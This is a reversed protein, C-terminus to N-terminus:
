TCRNRFPPSIQRFTGRIKVDFFDGCRFGQLMMTLSGLQNQLKQSLRVKLDLDIRSELLNRENLRISGTVSGELDGRLTLQSIEILQQQMSIEYLVESLNLETISLGKLLLHKQNLRFRFDTLTGQLTGIPLHQQKRQLQALNKIEGELSLVGAPFGFPLMNVLPVQQLMLEDLSINLTNMRPLDVALKLDSQYLQAQVLLQQFQLIPLFPLTVQDLRALTELPFMWFQPPRPFTVSPTSLRTWELQIPEIDLQLGTQRQAQSEIYKAVAEGPFQQRFGALLAVVLLILVAIFALLAKLILLPLRQL